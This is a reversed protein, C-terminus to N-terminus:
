LPVRQRLAPTAFTRYCYCKPHFIIKSFGRSIRPPDDGLLLIRLNAVGSHYCRISASLIGGRYRNRQQDGTGDFPYVPLVGEIYDLGAPPLTTGCVDRRFRPSPEPPVLQVHAIAPVHHVVPTGKDDLGPM